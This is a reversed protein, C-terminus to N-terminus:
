YRCRSRELPGAETVRLFQVLPPTTPALTISVSLAGRACPLTWSGRLANEVEDFGEGSECPGVKELLAEIEARRRDASRDLFLNVAALRQAAADDWHLVLRTVADRQAVLAESPAPMRPELGGTGRLRALAQDAPGGWSTYTRNGFALVGVGHEPLWRMVSGFGPLGGSHAVVHAFECTTSIGLGYGYGGSSLQPSGDAGRVIAAPRPRQVQQMERLSARRLPGTEPGDH